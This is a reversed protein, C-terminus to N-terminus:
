ALPKERNKCGPERRLKWCLFGAGLIALGATSPEPASTGSPGAVASSTIAVPATPDLELTDDAGSGDTLTQNALSFSEPGVASSVVTFEFNVIIGPSNFPASLVDAVDDILGISDDFTDYFPSGGGFGGAFSGAAFDGEETASLFNLFTPYNLDFQYGYVVDAATLSVDLGVTGGVTVSTSDPTLTLINSAQGPIAFAALFIAFISASKM